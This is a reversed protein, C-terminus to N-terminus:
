IIVAQAVAVLHANVMVRGANALTVPHRTTEYGIATVMVTVPGPKLMCPLTYNGDADTTTGIATVYRRGSLIHLLNEFM